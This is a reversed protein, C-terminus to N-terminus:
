LRRQRPNYKGPCLLGAASPSSSFYKSQCQRQEPHPHQGAAAVAVERRQRVLLQQGNHSVLRTSYAVSLESVTVKRLLLLLPAAEISNKDKTRSTPPLPHTPVHRRKEEDHTTLYLFFLFFVNKSSFSCQWTLVSNLNKIRYVSKQIRTFLLLPLHPIFVCFHGVMWSFACSPIHGFSVTEKLSM